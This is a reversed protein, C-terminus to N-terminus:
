PTVVIVALEPPKLEEAVSVTVVWNTEMAMLGCLGEMGNPRVCDRFATPVYASPLVCSRVLVTVQFEETTSTAATPGVPKTVETAWPVVVIVTVIPLTVAEAVSETMPGANSLAITLGCFGNTGGPAVCCNATAPLYESPVVRSMVPVRVHTDDVGPTAVTPPFPKAVAALAPVEVIVADAFRNENEVLRVTVAGPGGDIVTETEGAGLAAPQFLELTVTFNTHVGPPATIM